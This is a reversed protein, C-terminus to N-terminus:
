ISKLSKMDFEYRIKTDFYLSIDFFFFKIPTQYTPFFISRPIHLNKIPTQGMYRDFHM